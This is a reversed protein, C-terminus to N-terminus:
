KEVEITVIKNTAATVKVRHGDIVELEGQREENLNTTYARKIPASFHLIGEATDSSPNFLRVIFSDRDESKKFCSVVLNDSELKYFSNKLPLQGMDHRFTQVPLLDVNFNIAEDYVNGQEWNGEHPYVSYHFEMKGLLQAGKQTPYESIVRYETGIAVRVSRFLTLAVTREIDNMAEYEGLCDNILALGQKGDSVDVFYQQPLIQMEPWYEGNENKEPVVPRKSVTFHGAACAYEAQVGTPFLVRMRHDEVTNDIITRIDVRKSGRKLTVYTFITLEKEEDVRRSEGETGNYNETILCRAPLVMKIEVGITASLPGNEEIWIRPQSDRSTYIRNHYPPYYTWYHGVDGADEFYNLGCFVRGTAKHMLDFTGNNNVKILLHENELTNHGTLIDRGTSTRNINAFIHDRPIRRGPVLRYTRYGGAPVDKVYALLEHRDAEFPWPRAEKDHVAARRRRRSIQQIEIPKGDDDELSFDWLDMEHPVDIAIKLVESRSKWSPNIVVLFINGPDYRSFDISKVISGISAEAVVDALEVAQNLRYTVDAVTKDQTVGHISDHPHAKLMYDWAVNLYSTPYQEELNLTALSALPEAIHILLNQAKKNLQKIPARTAAANLAGEHPSGDRLEGKIVRLKSTDISAKVAEVYDELTTHVLERDDFIRNADSIIRGLVRACAAFDCGALLLRHEPVLTDDTDHWARDVYEEIAEPCYRPHDAVKFYDRDWHRDDARHFVVGDTIPGFRYDPGFLDIGYIAPIYANVFFNHRVNKGLRTTLVRTGDPSEWWFEANPAREPSVRKATIIFEVGFSALIQPFQAIQGWGFSTYGVKCCGGLSNAYRIGKLLNRVLCEGDVPWPDPLTFWPGIKLRGNRVHNKIKAEMEPRIQLYDEIPVSQGDMLFCRYNPDTDLLALIEDILEVLLYRTKWIPYRWERDWHCHPIVYGKPKNKKM